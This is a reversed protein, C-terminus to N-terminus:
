ALPELQYALEELEEFKKMLQKGINGTSIQAIERYTLAVPYTRESM